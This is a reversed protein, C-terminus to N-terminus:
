LMCVVDDACVTNIDEQLLIKLEIYVTTMFETICSKQEPKQITFMFNQLKTQGM